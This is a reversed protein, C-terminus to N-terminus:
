RFYNPNEVSDCLNETFDHLQTMQRQVKTQEDILDRLIKDNRRIRELSISEEGEDKKWRDLEVSLTAGINEMEEISRRSLTLQESYIQFKMQYDNAKRMLDKWLLKGRQILEQTQHFDELFDTEQTRQSLDTAFRQLASFKGEILEFNSKMERLKEMPSEGNNNLRVNMSKLNLEFENLERRFEENGRSFNM